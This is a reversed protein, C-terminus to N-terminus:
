WPNLLLHARDPTVRHEVSKRPPSMESTIVYPAQSGHGNGLKKQNDVQDVDLSSRRSPKPRRIRM